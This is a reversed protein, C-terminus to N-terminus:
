SVAKTPNLMHNLAPRQPTDCSAAVLQDIGCLLRKLQPAMLVVGDRSEADLETFANWFADPLDALRWVSLPSTGNLAESLRQPTLRMYIAAEKHSIGARSLALVVRQRLAHSRPTMEFAMAAVATIAIVTFSIM